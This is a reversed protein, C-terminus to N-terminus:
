RHSSWYWFNPRRWYPDLQSADAGQSWGGELAIIPIAHTSPYFEFRGVMQFQYDIEVSANGDGFFNDITGEQMYVEYAFRWKEAKLNTYISYLGVRDVDFAGTSITSNAAERILYLIM